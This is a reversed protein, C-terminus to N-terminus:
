YVDCNEQGISSLHSNLYVYSYPSFSNHDSNFFEISKDFCKIKDLKGNNKARKYFCHSGKGINNLNFYFLNAMFWNFRDNLDKFILIYNVLIQLMFSKFEAELKLKNSEVILYKLIVELKNINVIM